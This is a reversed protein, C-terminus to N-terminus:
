LQILRFGFVQSEAAFDVHKAFLQGRGSTLAFLKLLLCCFHAFESFFLVLFRDYVLSDGCVVDGLRDGQAGFVLFVLVVKLGFYLAILFFEVFLFLFAFNLVILERRGRLLFHGFIALEEIGNGNQFKAEGFNHGGVLFLLPQHILIQAVHLDDFIRKHLYLFRRPYSGNVIDNRAEDFRFLLVIRQEVVYISERIFRILELVRVSFNALLNLLDNLRFVRGRFLFFGVLLLHFILEFKVM